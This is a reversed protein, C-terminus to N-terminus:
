EISATQCIGGRADSTRGSVRLGAHGYVEPWGKEEGAAEEAPAEKEAEEPAKEEAKAEEAKAEAKAEEAETNGDEIKIHKKKEESM